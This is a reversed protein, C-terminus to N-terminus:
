FTVQHTYTPLSELEVSSIMYTATSNAPYRQEVVSHWRKAVPINIGKSDM